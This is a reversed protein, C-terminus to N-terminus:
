VRAKTMLHLHVWTEGRIELDAMMAFLAEDTMAELTSALAVARCGRFIDYPAERGPISM